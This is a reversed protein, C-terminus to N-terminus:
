AFGDILEAATGSVFRRVDDETWGHDLLARATVRYGTVPLPNHRQGYDSSLFTSSLGTAEVYTQLHDVGRRRVTGIVHEIKAGKAAWTATREPTAGELLPPHSVIMRQVGADIAAPLVADIEDASLHGFNLIADYQAVLELVSHVEETPRGDDDTVRNAPGLQLVPDAFVSGPAHDKALHSASSITPLWVMRAGSYLANEVVYPSVNGEYWNLAVGGYVEVWLEHFQYEAVTGHHDSAWTGRPGATTRAPGRVCRRSSEPCPCAPVWGEPL